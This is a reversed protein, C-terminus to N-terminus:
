KRVEARPTMRVFCKVLGLTRAKRAVQWGERSGAADTNGELAAFNWGTHNVSTVVGIHSFNYIVIDGRQHKINSARVMAPTFIMAGNARGWAEFSYARAIRPAKAGRFAKGSESALFDQVWKSVASACWPYGEDPGSKGNPYLDDAAFIAALEKGKNSGRPSEKKGLDREAAQALGERPNILESM